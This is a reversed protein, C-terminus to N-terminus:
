FALNDSYFLAAELALLSSHLFLLLPLRLLLPFLLLLDLLHIYNAQAPAIKSTLCNRLETAILAFIFEAGKIKGGMEDKRVGSSVNRGKKKKKEM